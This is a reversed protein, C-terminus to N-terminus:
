LEEGLGNRLAITREVPIWVYKTKVTTPKTIVYPKGLINHKLKEESNGSISDLSRSLTGIQLSVAKSTNPLAKFETLTKYSLNNANDKVGVRVKFLDVGKMIIQGKGDLGSLAIGDKYKGADCALVFDNASGNDDKRIFYRQVVIDDANITNGECDYEKSQDPKYQIVLVDSKDAIFSSKVGEGSVSTSAAGTLYNSTNVILGSVQDPKIETFPLNLNTLKIDDAVYTIGINANDQLGQISEQFALSRQGSILMQFAAGVIILGLILSVMLEILTFGQNFRSM